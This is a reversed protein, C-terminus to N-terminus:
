LTKATLPGPIYFNPNWPDCAPVEGPIDCTFNAIRAQMWRGDYRMRPRFDMVEQVCTEQTQSYHLFRGGDSTRFHNGPIRSLDLSNADQYEMWLLPVNGVKRWILYLDDGFLDSEIYPIATGKIDLFGFGFRNQPGTVLNTYYDRSEKQNIVSMISQGCSGACMTHCVNCQRLCEILDSSGVLFADGLQM